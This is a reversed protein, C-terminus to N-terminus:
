HDLQQVDSYSQERQDIYIEGKIKKKAKMFCVVINQNHMYM